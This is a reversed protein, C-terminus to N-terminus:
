TATGGCPTHSEPDGSIGQAWSSRAQRTDMTSRTRVYTPYLSPGRTWLNSNNFEKPLVSLLAAFLEIVVTPESGKRGVLQRHESQKVGIYWKYYKTGDPLYDDDVCYEYVCGFLNAAETAAARTVEAVDANRLVEGPDRVTIEWVVWPYIDLNAKVEDWNIDSPENV